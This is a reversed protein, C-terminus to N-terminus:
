KLRIFRDKKIEYHQDSWEILYKKSIVINIPAEVYNVPKSAYYYLGPVNTTIKGFSKNKRLRYASQNLEEKDLGLLALEKRLKAKSIILADIHTFDDKKIIKLDSSKM